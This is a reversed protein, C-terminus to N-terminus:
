KDSLIFENFNSNNILKIESDPYNNIFTKSIKAKKTPSFKFEFAFLKGEREEIYDIEQQQWTRWFYINCHINNYHLFKMRESIMFNEWLAGVDQRKNLPNFNNIISNRIGNDYFYIKRSKNLENRLNRSFSNLKFIVYTKELLSIYNIITNKDVQLLNSLEQYSVENGLQLALANLLNNLLEPRRIDKYALVDKYLYSGCLQTLTDIEDGIRNIVDPYMGFILRQEFSRNAEINGFHDYYEQWSIPFLYYEWKRGTLPENVGLALDLSSSGTIFLQINPMEDTILKLTLGIDKIRQAEDIFVYKSNKLTQKLSSLNAEKLQNNVVSDDANLYLTNKYKKIIKKLLTTKGTQRPGIIIIAKGSNIKKAILNELARNLM